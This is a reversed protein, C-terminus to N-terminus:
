SKSAKRRDMMKRLIDGAADSSDKQAAKAAGTAPEADKKKVYFPNSEDIFEEPMQDVEGSKSLDEIGDDDDPSYQELEDVVPEPEPEPEKPKAAPAPVPTPSKAVPKEKSLEKYTDVTITDGGYVGSPRDPTPRAEDSILWADIEDHNVDDLSSKRPPGSPTALKATPLGEISVAFTLSGIKVLDGNKLAQPQDKVLPKGNVETGNRSGLDRVQVTDVGVEFEAHERSVLDSNPRLQCGEGRGIKFKPIALPITKGEPKGQVVVLQVKM